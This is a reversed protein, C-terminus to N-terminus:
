NRVVTDAHRVIDAIVLQRPASWPIAPSAGLSGPGDESGGLPPLELGGEVDAGLGAPLHPLRQGLVRPQGDSHDLDPELVLPGLHLFHLPPVLQVLVPLGDLLLVLLVFFTLSSSITKVAM